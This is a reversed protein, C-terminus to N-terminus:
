LKYREKISLKGITEPNVEEKYIEEIEDSTTWEEPLSFSDDINLTASAPLDEYFSREDEDQYIDAEISIKTTFIIKNDDIIFQPESNEFKPMPLNLLEAFGKISVQITKFEEYIKLLDVELENFLDGKQEYYFRCKAELSKYQNFIRISFRCMTKFFKVISEYLKEFLM